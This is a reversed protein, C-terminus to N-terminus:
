LKGAGAKTSASGAAEHQRQLAVDTISVGAETVMGARQHAEIETRKGRWLLVESDFVGGGTTSLRRLETRHPKGYREVLLSRLAPWNREHATFVFARVRGDHLLVSTGWIPVGLDPAGNVQRYKADISPVPGPGAICITRSVDGSCVPAAAAVEAGLMVGMARDPEQPWDQAFTSCALAALAAATIAAKM